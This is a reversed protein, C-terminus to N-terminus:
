EQVRAGSLRSDLAYNGEHCAYEYQTYKSDRKYPFAVTWPATYTEPDDVTLTYRLTNEDEFTFTPGEFVRPADIFDISHSKLNSIRKKEDWTFRM